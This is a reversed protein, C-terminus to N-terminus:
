LVRARCLSTWVFLSFKNREKRSFDDQERRASKWRKFVGADLLGGAAAALLAGALGWDALTNLYDNHAWEPRAQVDITRYQPFQCDFQAPGAGWWFNDRWMKAVSRWISFRMEEVKGSEAFMKGWRLHAKEVKPAIYRGALTLLAALAFTQIRYNRDLLLAGVLLFVALGAAIWSGRSVSAGIGAIM